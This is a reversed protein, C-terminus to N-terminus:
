PQRRGAGLAGRLQRLAGRANRQAQECLLRLREAMPQFRQPLVPALSKLAPVARPLEAAPFHEGPLAGKRNWRKPQLPFERARESEDCAVFCIRPWRKAM